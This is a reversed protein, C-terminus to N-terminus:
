QKQFGDKWTDVVSDIYSNYGKKKYEDYKELIIDKAKPRHSILDHIELRSTRRELM